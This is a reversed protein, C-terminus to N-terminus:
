CIIEVRNVGADARRVAATLVQHYNTEIYSKQFASSAMLVLRGQGADVESLSHLWASYLAPQEEALIRAAGSWAGQGEPGAGAAPRLPVVKPSVAEAATDQEPNMRAVFDPGILPWAPRTDELIQLQDLGYTSIRGRAGRTKQVLWGQARLKAMERKVTREDVSWLRAIERQGVCLEDRQWNYRATILAVLRMIRTQTGRDAALGYSTMASLLDYKRSAAQRGVPKLIQM